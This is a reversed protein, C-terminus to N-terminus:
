GTCIKERIVTFYLIEDNRKIMVTVQTGPTGRLDQGNIIIDKLRIGNHYAPYYEPCESVENNYGLIVGIGGYWKNEPCEPAKKDDKQKPISQVIKIEIDKSDQSGKPVLNKGEESKKEIGNQGSKDSNGTGLHGNLFLTALLLLHIIISILLYKKM